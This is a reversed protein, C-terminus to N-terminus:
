FFNRKFFGERHKKNDKKEEELEKLDIDIGRVRIEEQIEDYTLFKIKDALPFTYGCEDCFANEFPVKDRFVILEGRKLSQEMYYDADMFPKKVFRGTRASGCNPCDPVFHYSYKIKIM